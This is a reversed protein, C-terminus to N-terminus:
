LKNQGMKECVDGVVLFLWIVYVGVDYQGAHLPLQGPFLL